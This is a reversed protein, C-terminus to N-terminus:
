KNDNQIAQPSLLKSDEGTADAGGQRVKMDDSVDRM